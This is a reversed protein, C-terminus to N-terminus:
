RQCFLRQVKTVSNQRKTLLFDLLPMAECVGDGGVQDFWDLSDGLVLKEELHLM